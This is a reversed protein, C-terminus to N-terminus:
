ACKKIGVILSLDHTRKKFVHYFENLKCIKGGKEPVMEIMKKINSVNFIYIICQKMKPSLVYSDAYTCTMLTVNKVQKIVWTM